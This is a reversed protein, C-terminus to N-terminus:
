PAVPPEPRAKWVAKIGPLLEPDCDLITGWIKVARAQGAVTIVEGAVFEASPEATMTLISGSDPSGPPPDPLKQVDYFTAIVGNDQTAHGSIEVITGPQFGFVAVTLRVKGNNELDIETVQTHGM